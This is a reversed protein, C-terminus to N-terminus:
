LFIIESNKLELFFFMRFAVLFHTHAYKQLLFLGALEHVKMIRNYPYLSNDFDIDFAVGVTLTTSHTLIFVMENVNQYNTLSGVWIGSRKKIFFPM